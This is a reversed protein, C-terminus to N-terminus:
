SLIASLQDNLLWKLDSSFAFKLAASLGMSIREKM